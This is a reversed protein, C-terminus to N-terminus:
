FDFLVRKEPIILFSPRGGVAHQVKGLYILNKIPSDCDLVQVRKESAIPMEWIVQKPQKRLHLTM